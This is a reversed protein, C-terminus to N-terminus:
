QRFMGEIDEWTCDNNDAPDIGLIHAIILHDNLNRFTKDHVYGQKFAPGCAFFAIHM